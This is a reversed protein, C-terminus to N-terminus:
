SSEQCRHRRVQLVRGMSEDLRRVAETGALDSSGPAARGM